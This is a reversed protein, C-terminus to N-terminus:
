GSRLMWAPSQAVMPAQKELFTSVSNAVQRLIDLTLTSRDMRSHLHKDKIEESYALHDGNWYSGLPVNKAVVLVDDVYKTILYIVIGQEELKERFKKM